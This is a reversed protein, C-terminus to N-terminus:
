EIGRARAEAVLDYPRGGPVRDIAKQLAKVLLAATSKGDRVRELEGSPLFQDFFWPLNEGLHQIAALNPSPDRLEEIRLGTIAALATLEADDYFDAPPRDRKESNHDVCLATAHEDLPWLLALPRTHDLQMENRAGFQRKCKFCAGDFREYVDAALDRGTRNRYALQPSGRYLHELLVEFARRRAGDEKMQSATRQTNLAANVFFKKCFRCELQFGFHMEHAAAADDEDQIRGFSAHTCPARAVCHNSFSLTDRENPPLNIPLFRGCRNCSKLALLAPTASREQDPGLLVVRGDTEPYFNGEPAYQAMNSLLAPRASAIGDHAVHGAALDFLALETATTAVFTVDIGIAGESDAVWQSGFKGWAPPEASRVLQTPMPGDITLTTAPSTLFWGGFGVRLGPKVDPIEFRVTVEDQPNLAITDIKELRMRVPASATYGSRRTMPRRRGAWPTKGPLKNEKVM